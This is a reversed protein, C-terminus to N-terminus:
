FSGALALVFAALGTLMPSAIMGPALLQRERIRSFLLSQIVAVAGLYLIVHWVLSAASVEPSLLILATGTFMEAAAILALLVSAGVYGGQARYILYLAYVAVAASLLATVLHITFFVAYGM